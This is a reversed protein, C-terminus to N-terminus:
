LLIAHAATCPTAACAEPIWNLSVDHNFDCSAICCDFLFLRHSKFFPFGGHLRHNIFAILLSLPRNPDQHFPSHLQFFFGGEQFWEFDVLDHSHDSLPEAVGALSVFWRGRTREKHRPGKQTM